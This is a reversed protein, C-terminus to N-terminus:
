FAVADALVPNESGIAVTADLPEELDFGDGAVPPMGDVLVADPLELELVDVIREAFRELAAVYAARDGHERMWGGLEEHMRWKQRHPPDGDALLVAGMANKISLS